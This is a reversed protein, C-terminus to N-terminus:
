VPDRILLKLKLDPIHCGLEAVGALLFDVGDFEPKVFAGTAAVVILAEVAVLWNEFFLLFLMLSFDMDQYAGFQGELKRTLILTAELSVLSSKSLVLALKQWHKALVTLLHLGELQVQIVDLHTSALGSLAKFTALEDRLFVHVNMM